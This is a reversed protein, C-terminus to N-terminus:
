QAAFSRRRHADEVAPFSSSMERVGIICELASAEV